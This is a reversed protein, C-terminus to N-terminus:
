ANVASDKMMTFMLMSKEVCFPDMDYGLVIIPEGKFYISGISDFSIVFDVFGIYAVSKGNDLVTPMALPTNRFQQPGCPNYPRYAGGRFIGGTKAQLIFKYLEPILEQWRKLNNEDDSDVELTLMPLNTLVMSQTAM